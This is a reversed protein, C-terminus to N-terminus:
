WYYMMSQNNNGPHHWYSPHVWQTLEFPEPLNQKVCPPRCIHLWAEQKSLSSSPADFIAVFFRSAAHISTTILANCTSKAFSMSGVTTAIDDITCIVYESLIHALKMIRQSVYGASHRILWDCHKSGRIEHGLWACHSGIQECCCGLRASDHLNIVYYLLNHFKNAHSVPFLYVSKSSHAFNPSM